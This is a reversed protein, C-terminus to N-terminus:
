AADPLGLARHINEVLNLLKLDLDGLLHLPKIFIQISPLFGLHRAMGRPRMAHIIDFRQDIVERRQRAVPQIGFIIGHDSTQTAPLTLGNGNQAM